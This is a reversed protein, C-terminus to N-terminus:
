LKILFTILFLHNRFFLPPFKFASRRNRFYFHLDSVTESHNLSTSCVQLSWIESCIIRSTFYLIFIMYSLPFPWLFSCSYPSLLGFFRCHSLPQVFVMKVKCTVWINGGSRHALTPVLFQDLLCIDGKQKDIDDLPNIRWHKM